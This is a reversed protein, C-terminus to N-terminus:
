RRTFTEVIEPDWWGKETERTLIMLADGASFAKKYPRESTLADYVDCVQFVRALYPIATGRLGDPYGSGDYREHHHRVIPQTRSMTRLPAVLDAGIAAHTKMIEREDDTLAGPKLLVADPIGIKGIDHLTGAKRLAELDADIVGLKRGLEVAMRSLRDCHDATTGDKAEVARALAMLVSEADDLDRIARYREVAGGVRALLERIRVPKVLYDDGGAEFAREVTPMDDSGTLFLVPLRSSEAHDRIWGCFAVGDAGPLGIDVIAADFARHGILEQAAEASDATTIEIGVPALVRRMGAAVGADDEVLLVRPMM